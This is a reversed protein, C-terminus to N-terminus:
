RGKFMGTRDQVNRFKRQAVEATARLILSELDYWGDLKGTGVKDSRGAEDVFTMSPDFLHFPDMRKAAERMAKVTKLGDASGILSKTGHGGLMNRPFGLHLRRWLRIKERFSMFESVLLCIDASACRTLQFGDLSSAAESSFVM